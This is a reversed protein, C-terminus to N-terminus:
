AAREYIQHRENFTPEMIIKNNIEILAFATFAGKPGYKQVGCGSSQVFPALASVCAIARFQLFWNNRHCSLV